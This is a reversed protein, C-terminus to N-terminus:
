NRHYGNTDMSKGIAKSSESHSTEDVTVEAPSNPPVPSPFAERLSNIVESKVVETEFHEPSAPREELGNPPTSPTQLDTSTEDRGMKM